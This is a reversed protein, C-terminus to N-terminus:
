YIVKVYSRVKERKVYRVPFLLELAKFSQKVGADYIGNRTRGINALHIEIAKEEFPFAQEELLLDYEELQEENLTRPRQSKLIAQGFERYLEAIEFSAQTYVASIKYAMASEIAAIAKKMLKKKTNLSKKIPLTLSVRQYKKVKPIALALTAKAALYHTQLNRHVGGVKDSKIIQRLWFSNKSLQNQELYYNAIIERALMAEEIPYPYKKLYLKFTKLAYKDLKALHYMQAAQWLMNKRFKKDGSKALSLLETAAKRRQGTKSYILALKTIVGLKLKPYNSLETRYKELLVAARNWDEVKIFMAAADYESKVRIDANPVTNAVQMFQFAAQRYLGRDRLVEAYKYISDALRRAVVDYNDHDITLRSFIILYSQEAQQFQKLEYQTHALILRASSRYTSNRINENDLLRTALLKAGEYDKNEFVTEMTNTLVLAYHRSNTFTEIFKLASNVALHQKSPWRKAPTIKKLEDYSLVAAYASDETRAHHSYGYATNNYEQAALEFQKADFLLESLLFQYRVADLDTPYWSLFVRYWKEAAVFYSQQNNDRANAHYYKALTIIHEKLIPKIKERQELSSNTWFVSSVGFRTVYDTLNALILRNFEHKKYIDLASAHYQTAIFQLPNNEVYAMYSNAADLFRAKSQYFLALQQYLYAEYERHGANLFFSDISKIDPLKSFSLVTIYILDGLIKKETVSVNSSLGTKTLKGQQYKIDILQISDAIAATYHNSKFLSWSNQYLAREFFVSSKGRAIIRKYWKSAATYKKKLFYVDGLRFLSEAVYRSNPHKNILDFLVLQQKDHESILSYGRALQYRVLDNGEAAPYSTLHQLYYEIASKAHQQVTNTLGSKGDSVAQEALDLQLDALRKEAFDQKKNDNTVTLYGQYADIVDKRHLPVRELSDIVYPTDSLSQLTGQQSSCGTVLLSLAVYCACYFTKIGFM